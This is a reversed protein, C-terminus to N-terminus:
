CRLFLAICVVLRVCCRCARQLKMGVRRLPGWMAPVRRIKPDRQAQSAGTSQLVGGGLDTHGEVPGLAEGRRHLGM